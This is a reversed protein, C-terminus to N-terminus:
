PNSLRIETKDRTADHKGRSSATRAVRCRLPAAVSTLQHSLLSVSVLGVLLVQIIGEADGALRHWGVRVDAGAVVLCGNASPLRSCAMSNMLSSSSTSTVGFLM